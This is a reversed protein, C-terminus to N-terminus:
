TLELMQSTEVYGLACEPRNDLQAPTWIVAGKITTSFYAACLVGNKDEKDTDHSHLSLLYTPLYTPRPGPLPGPDENLRGDVRLMM